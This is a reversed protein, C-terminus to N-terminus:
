QWHVIVVSQSKFIENKLKINSNENWIEGLSKFELGCKFVLDAL